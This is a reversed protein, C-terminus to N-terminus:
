RCASASHCSCRGPSRPGESRPAAGPSAPSARRLLGSPLILPRWRTPSARPVDMSSLAARALFLVAAAPLWPVIAMCILFVSAPIHTFVMTRILGVRRALWVAFPFSIATLLGGAFFLAGVAEPRADFRTSFWYALFAPVALSGAFSDLSFLASLRLVVSRSRRLGGARGLEVSGGGAQDVPAAAVEARGDLRTALGMAVLGLLAYSVFAPAYADPGTLGLLSAVGLLPGLALAGLSSALAAMVNYFAFAATRDAAAVTGPLLAQDITHLGTSENSTISVMGSLAIAGLALANTGLIPILAALSMLACGAVLVRRRGLRDGRLAILLTLGMTGVLAASLVWGTEAASLGSDALYLGLAVANLGFAFSRVSRAAVVLRGNRDLRPRLGELRRLTRASRSSRSRPWEARTAAV